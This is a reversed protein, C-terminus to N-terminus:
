SAAPTDRLATDPQPPPGSGAGFQVDLEVTGQDVDFSEMEGTVLDMITVTARFPKNGGGTLLLQHAQDEGGFAFFDVFVERPKPFGLDFDESPFFTAEHQDQDRVLGRCASGDSKVFDVTVKFRGDLFLVANELRALVDPSLVQYRVGAPAASLLVGPAGIRTHDNGTADFARINLFQASSANPDFSGDLVLKANLGQQFFPALLVALCSDYRAGFFDPFGNESRTRLEAPGASCQQEADSAQEEVEFEGGLVGFDTGCFFAFLATAVPDSGILPGVKGCIEDNDESNLAAPSIFFFDLPGQAVSVRAGTEATGSRQQASPEGGAEDLIEMLRPRQGVVQATIEGGDVEFAVEAGAARYNFVGISPPTFPGVEFRLTVPNGGVETPGTNVGNPLVVVNGTTFLMSHDVLGAVGLNTLACEFPLSPLGTLDLTHPCQMLPAPGSDLVSPRLLRYDEVEGHDWSDTGDWDEVDIPERTLLIRMWGDPFRAGDSFAFVDPYFTVTGGPVVDDEYNQVAWEPEGGAALGGWRGDQNLDILVNLYRAGGPEGPAVTAEVAFSAPLPLDQLAVVFNTLGDDAPDANVLNEDAEGSVAPGLTDLCPNRIRAGDSALLTPFAATVPTAYGADSGDPADGFDMGTSIAAQNWTAPAAMQVWMGIGPNLLLTAQLAEPLRTDFTELAGSTGQISVSILTDVLSATAAAVPTGAPGGWAVLNFGMGLEVTLPGSNGPRTWLVPGDADLSLWYGGGRALTELTPPLPTGPRNQTFGPLSSDWGFVAEVSLGDIAEPLSTEEATWGILNLGPQLSTTLASQARAPVLGATLLAATVILLATAWTLPRRATM